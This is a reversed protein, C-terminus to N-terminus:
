AAGWQYKYWAFLGLLGRSVKPTVVLTPVNRRREMGAGRCERAEGNGRREMGAGRWERVEGNGHGETGHREMGAGEMGAGRWRRAGGNQRREMGAGEM